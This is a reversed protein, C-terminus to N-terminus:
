QMTGLLKSGHSYADFFNDFGDKTYIRVGGQVTVSFRREDETHIYLVKQGDGRTSPFISTM